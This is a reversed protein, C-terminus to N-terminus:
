ELAELQEGLEAFRTELIEFAKNLARSAGISGDTEVAFLIRSPDGKVTFAGHWGAEEATEVCAMCLTCKTEDTVVVKGDDHALIDVPCVDVPFKKGDLKKNDVEVVPHYKYSVSTVPQWKAHDRGTGLIATAYILMAQGEGLEVLPIKPDVPRLKVDGIPELDGSYVMGPGRKNLSYIITCSTCGEGGCGKCTAKPVYLDLDTPLPVLGLRQAIIEDFLPAISEYEKGDETRIPGLHFEVDEIAMKPLDAILTRRLANAIMPDTEELLFHLVPEKEEIVKVKM